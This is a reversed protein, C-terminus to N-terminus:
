QQAEGSLRSQGAFVHICTRCARRGSTAYRYTNEPTYEHGRPCHTKLSNNRGPMAKWREVMRKIQQRRKASMWTYLTFALAVAHSGNLTWRHYPQGMDRTRHAYQRLHGGFMKQLYLLPELQVQSASVTIQGRSAGVFSGEGELFGSAWALGVLGVDTSQSWGDQKWM